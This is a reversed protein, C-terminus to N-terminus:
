SVVIPHLSIMYFCRTYIAEVLSSHHTKLQAIKKKHQDKLKAMKLKGEALLEDQIVQSQESFQTM